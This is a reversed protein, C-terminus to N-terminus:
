ELKFLLDAPRSCRGLEYTDFVVRDDKYGVVTGKFGNIVDIVHDGIKLVAEECRFLPNPFSTYPISTHTIEGKGGGGQVPTQLVDNPTSPKVAEREVKEVTLHQSIKHPATNSVQCHKCSNEPSEVPNPQQITTSETNLPQQSDKVEIIDPSKAMQEASGSSHTPPPSYGKDIEQLQTTCGEDTTHEPLCYVWRRQDFHSRRKCIMQRDELRDLVTYLSKGIGLFNDLEQYELGKPSVKRLLEM